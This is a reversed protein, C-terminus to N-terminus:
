SAASSTTTGDICSRLALINWSASAKTTAGPPTPVSSSAMSSKDQDLSSSCLFGM